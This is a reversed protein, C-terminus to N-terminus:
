KGVCFTAFVRGIVDDPSIEGVLEGLADLANRLGVAVLEPEGLSPCSADIREIAEEIGSLSDFLARRHRPVFGGVGSGHRQTVADAIARRLTPLASGDLACVALGDAQRDIIPLDSKTRIRVIPTQASPRELEDFRGSPDCWLIVSAEEIYSRAQAIAQADIADIPVEALGALDILEIEGAGPVHPSLDLTERIADRTTGARESVMARHVGLLANLLTSKGANPRGALVVRPLGTQVRDGSAGGLQDTIQQHIVGLRDSLAGPAIPIVDEQDAFDVGAEVLALLTAIEQAWQDCQHGYTGDLLSRAADLADDHEAAIRLAIGEAQQLTLRRNLYARASFEGPQALEVGDLGLLVDLLRGVLTPNAPMVLEITDEGTYSGPAPYWLLMLPLDFGENLRIRAKLLGRAQLHVGFVCESCRRVAPGSLRVMARNATGPPSCPAVITSGTPV